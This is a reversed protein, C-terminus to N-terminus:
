GPRIDNDLEVQIEKTGDTFIFTDANIQRILRGDVIADRETLMGTDELLEAVIVTDAPGSYSIAARNHEDAQAFTPVILAVTAIALFTHKIM